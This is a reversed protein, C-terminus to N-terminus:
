KIKPPPMGGLAGGGGAGQGGGDRNFIGAFILASGAPKLSGTNENWYLFMVLFVMVLLLGFLTKRLSGTFAMKKIFNTLVTTRLNRQQSNRKNFYDNALLM